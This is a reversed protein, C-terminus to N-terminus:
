APWVKRMALGCREALPRAASASCFHQLICMVCVSPRSGATVAGEVVRRRRRRRRRPPPQAAAPSPHVLRRPRRAPRPAAARRVAHRPGALHVNRPARESPRAGRTRAAAPIPTTTSVPATDQADTGLRLPRMRRVAHRRIASREVSAARRIRHLRVRPERQWTLPPLSPCLLM